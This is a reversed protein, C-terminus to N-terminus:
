QIDLKVSILRTSSVENGNREHVWMHNHGFGYSFFNYEHSAMTFRLSEEGSSSIINSLIQHYEMFKEMNKPFGINSEIIAKM